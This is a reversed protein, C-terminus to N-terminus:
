SRQNFFFSIYIKYEEIQMTNEYLYLPISQRRRLMWVTNALTPKWDAIFQIQFESFFPFICIM